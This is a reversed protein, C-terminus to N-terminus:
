MKKINSKKVEIARRTSSINQVAERMLKWVVKKYSVSTRPNSLTAQYGVVDKRLEDIDAQLTKIAELEGQMPTRTKYTPARTKEWQLFSQEFGHSIELEASLSDLIDFFDKSELDREIEDERGETPSVAPLVGTRRYENLDVVQATHTTVASM